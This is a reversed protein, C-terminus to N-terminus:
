KDRASDCSGLEDRRTSGIGLWFLGAVPSRSSLSLFSV